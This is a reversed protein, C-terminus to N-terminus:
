DVNEKVWKEFMQYETEHSKFLEPSERSRLERLYTEKSLKDAIRYKIRVDGLSHLSKQIPSLEEITVVLNNDDTWSLQPRFLFAKFVVSQEPALQDVRDERGVNAVENGLVIWFAGYGAAFGYACKQNVVHAVKRGTPSRFSTDTVPGCDPSRTNAAPPNSDLGIAVCFILLLSSIVRMAVEFVDVSAKLTRRLGVKDSPPRVAFGVSFSCRGIGATQVERDDADNSFASALTCDNPQRESGQQRISSSVTLCTARQSSPFSEAITCLTQSPM